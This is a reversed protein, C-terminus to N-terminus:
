PETPFGTVEEMLKAALRALVMPGYRREALFPERDDENYLLGAVAGRVAEVLEAAEDMDIDGPERNEWGAVASQVAAWADVEPDPNFHWLHEEGPGLRIPIPRFDFGIDVADREVGMDIPARRAVPTQAAQQAKPPTKPRRDQAPRKRAAAASPTLPKSQRKSRTGTDETTEVSTETSTTETM